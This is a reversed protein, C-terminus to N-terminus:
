NLHAATELCPRSTHRRKKKIKPYCTILYLQVWCHRQSLHFTEGLLDHGRDPQQLTASCKRQKVFYSSSLSCRPESLFFSNQSVEVSDLLLDTTPPFRSVGSLVRRPQRLCSGTSTQWSTTFGFTGTQLPLTWWTFLWDANGRGAKLRRCSRCARWKHWWREIRWTTGSYCPPRRQGNASHWVQPPPLFYASPQEAEITRSACQM